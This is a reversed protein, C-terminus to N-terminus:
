QVYSLTDRVVITQDCQFGAYETVGVTSRLTIYSVYYVINEPVKERPLFPKKVPCNNKQAGTQM